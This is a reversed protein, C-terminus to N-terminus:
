ANRTIKSLEVFEISKPLFKNLSCVAARCGPVDDYLRATVSKDPTLVTDNSRSFCIEKFPIDSKGNLKYYSEKLVWLEFFDFTQLENSSCVREAVGPKVPRIAEIDVGIPYMGVACLVHEATHSLSFCLDPRNPFYPKGTRHKKIVPMPIGYTNVIMYELLAYVAQTGTLGGRATCCLKMTNGKQKKVSARIDWYTYVRLRVVPM